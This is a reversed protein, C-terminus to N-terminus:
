GLAERVERLLDDPGFPKALFNSGTEIVEKKVVVDETHGSMYLVRTEARRTRLVQALERGNMNPMVVDTILLEIRGGHREAVRLAEEGSAAELVRYGAAELVQRVLSRVAPEDEALLLTEGHASTDHRPEEMPVPAVEGEARPLFIRFSTGGGPESEVAVTGGAQRVINYLTALGLGTGMGKPKTTFFPEFIRSKVEPSIGVGSDSVELLVYHGPPVPILGLGATEALEVPSTAVELRGGQPMADRANIVLNVLVQEIQGPDALIVGAAADLRMELEINERLLQRLM